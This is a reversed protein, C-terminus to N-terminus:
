FTNRGITVGNAALEDRTPGVDHRIHIGHQAVPIDETFVGVRVAGLAEELDVFLILRLLDLDDVKGEAM